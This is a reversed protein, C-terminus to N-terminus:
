TTIMVTGEMAFVSPDKPEDGDFARATIEARGQDNIRFEVALAGGSEVILVGLTQMAPRDPDLEDADVEVRFCWGGTRDALDAEIEDIM